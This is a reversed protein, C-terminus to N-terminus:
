ADQLEDFAGAQSLSGSTDLVFVVDLPPIAALGSASIEMERLGVVRMFTTPITRNAAFLVTSEGAPNTGFTLDTDIDGVGDAIGNARAVAEAEAEATLQGQRLMRAAALAGADVARGIRVKEVYGRGLDVALGVSALMVVLVVVVVLLVSGRRDRAMSLAAEFSESSRATM